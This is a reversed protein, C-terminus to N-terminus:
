PLEIRLEGGESWDVVQTKSKEGLRVTVQYQGKFVRSSARGEADTERSANSWWDRFLLNLTAIANPKSTWDARYMAGRPLWHRREWFGWLLFDRFREQGFIYTMFDRTFDAQVSEDPTNLDFESVAFEVPFADAYRKVVADVVDLPQPSSFHSQFGFGDVPANNEFLFKLFAFTYNVHAGNVNGTEFQDYDNLYLKARGDLQRAMEFWRVAEANGLVGHSPTVGAVGGIRGQVDFNDFPENLVDWHYLKGAVGADGLIDRFRGDIRAKLAEPGLSPLDAPTNRWSPWIVVHGRLPIDRDALWQIANRTRPKPFANSAEWFPWKLDNELVTTNFHSEIRSRYQADDESTGMIGGATVASGYRWAHSLQQMEVAAGSVPAGAADVVLVSADTKRHKEIGERAVARWPADSVNRGPYSFEVPLQEPQAQNGYHLLVVDAIEFVQPGAGFQFRFAAGGPAYTDDMRFPMQFRQWEETDVPFRLTVSKSFNGGNRELIAQAQVFPSEGSIRRAWFSVHMTDDRTLPREISWSLAARFIEASQGHTAVRLAESFSQGEVAVVRASGGGAASDFYSSFRSWDGVPSVREGAASLPALPPSKTWSLGGIEFTQPGQGYVFRLSLAGNEYDRAAIREFAYITWVGTNVPFVTDLLEGRDDTLRLSARINFRDQPATKRIWFRIRMKEGSAVPAENRWRTEGDGLQFGAEPTDIRLAQTFSRGSVSVIETAGRGV